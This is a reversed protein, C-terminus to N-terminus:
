PAGALAYRAHALAREVRERLPPACLAIVRVRGRDARVLVRVRGDGADLTFAAPVAWTRCALTRALASAFPTKRARREAPAPEAVGGAARTGRASAPAATQERRPRYGAARAARPARQADDHVRLRGSAAPAREAVHLASYWAQSLVRRDHVALNTAMVAVGTPHEM